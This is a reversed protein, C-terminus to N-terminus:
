VRGVQLAKCVCGDIRRYARFGLAEYFALAPKNTEGITADIAVLSADRAAGLTAAFLRAGVGRRAALPSIHTGVIGWGTPVGYPNGEWARKLSQFGLIRTEKDVAIFCHIRNAHEIYRALVFAADAKTERQGADFIENLVQSMRDADNSTASSINM